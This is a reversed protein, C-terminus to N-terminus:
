GRLSADHTGVTTLWSTAKERHFMRYIEGEREKGFSSWSPMPCRAARPAGNGRYTGGDAGEEEKKKEGGRWWIKSASREEVQGENGAVKEREREQFIIGM